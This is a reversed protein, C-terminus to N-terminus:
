YACTTTSVLDQHALTFDTHPVQVIQFPSTKKNVVNCGIGPVTHTISITRVGDTDTIHDISIKYGDTSHSGDFIALVDYKSFDIKPVRPSGQKDGYVLTWLTDLDYESTIRYNVSDTVSHADTGEQLLTHSVQSSNVSGLSLTSYFDSRLSSPGLFFLLLGILIAVSGMGLLLYLDRMHKTYVSGNVYLSATRM